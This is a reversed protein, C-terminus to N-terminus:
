NCWIKLLDDVILKLSCAHEGNEGIRKILIEKIYVVHFRICTYIDCMLLINFYINFYIYPLILTFITMYRNRKLLEKCSLPEQNAIIYLTYVM